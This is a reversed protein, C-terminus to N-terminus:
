QEQKQLNFFIEKLHNPIKTLVKGSPKFQDNVKGIYKTRASHNYLRGDSTIIDFGGRVKFVQPKM